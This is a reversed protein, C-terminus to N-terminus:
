QNTIKTIYEFQIYQRQTNGTYHKDILSLATERKDCKFEFMAHANGNWDIGIWLGKWKKYPIFVQRGNKYTIIKIRYQM